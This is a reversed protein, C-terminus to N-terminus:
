WIGHDLNTRFRSQTTCFASTALNYTAMLKALLFWTPKTNQFIQSKRSNVQCKMDLPVDTLNLALFWVTTFKSPKLVTRTKGIARTRGNPQLLLTGNSNKWAKSAIQGMQAWIELFWLEPDAVVNDLITRFLSQATCFLSTAFNYTAVLKGLPTWNQTRSSKVKENNILM